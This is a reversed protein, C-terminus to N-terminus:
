RLPNPLSINFVPVQASCVVRGDLGAAWIGKLTRCISTKGVGNAGCVMLNQGEAVAFSLADVLPIGTPTRVDVEEFSLTTAGNGEAGAAAPEGSTAANKADTEDLLESIRMAYGSLQMMTRGSRMLQGVEGRVDRVLSMTFTMESLLNANAQM